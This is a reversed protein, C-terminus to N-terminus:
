LESDGAYARAVIILFYIVFVGISAWWDGVLYAGFALGLTSFFGTIAARLWDIAIQVVVFAILLFIAWPANLQSFVPIFANVLVIAVFEAVGEAIGEGFEQAPDGM